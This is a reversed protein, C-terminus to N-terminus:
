VAHEHERWCSMKEYTWTGNVRRAVQNRPSLCPEGLATAAECPWVCEHPDTLRLDRCFPCDAGTLREEPAEFVPKKAAVKPTPRGHAPRTSGIAARLELIKRDLAASNTM